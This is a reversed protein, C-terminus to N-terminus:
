RLSRCVWCVPLGYRQLQGCSWRRLRGASASCWLAGCICASGRDATCGHRHWSQLGSLERRMFDAPGAQWVPKGAQLLLQSGSVSGDLLTALTWGGSSPVDQLMKYLPTKSM